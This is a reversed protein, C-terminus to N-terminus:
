RDLDARRGFNTPRARDGGGGRNRGLPRTTALPTSRTTMAVCPRPGIDRNQNPPVASPRMRRDVIGMRSRRGQSPSGAARGSKLGRFTSTGSSPEFSLFRNESVRYGQGVVTLRFEVDQPDVWMWPSVSGRVERMRYLHVDLYVLFAPDGGGLVHILLRFLQGAPPYGGSSVDDSARPQRGPYQLEGFLSPGVEDRHRCVSASAHGSEDESADRVLNM